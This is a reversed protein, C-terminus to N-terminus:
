QDHGFGFREEGARRLWEDIIKDTRERIAAAVPGQKYSRMTDNSERAFALSLDRNPVCNLYFDSLCLLIDSVSPAYTESEASGTARLIHLAEMYLLDVHNYDSLAIRAEAANRCCRALDASYEPNRAVLERYLQLTIEIYTVAEEYKQQKRYINYLITLVECYQSTNAPTEMRKDRLVPLAELLFAEAPEYRDSAYYYIGASVYLTHALPRSAVDLMRYAGKMISWAKDYYAASNENNGLQAYIGAIEFFNLTELVRCEETYCENKKMIGFLRELCLFYDLSKDNDQMRKYIDGLSYVILMTQAYTLGCEMELCVEYQEIANDFNDHDSYFNALAMRDDVTKGYWAACIYYEKAEDYLNQQSAEEALRRYIEAKEEHTVYVSHLKSQTEEDIMIQPM